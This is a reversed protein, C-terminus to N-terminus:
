NAPVEGEKAAAPNLMPVIARQRPSKPVQIQITQNPQISDLITVPEEKEPAFVQISEVTKADGLGVTLRSSTGAVRQIPHLVWDQDRVVFAVRTGPRSGALTLNLWNSMSSDVEQWRVKGESSVSFLDTSGDGTLDASLIEELSDVYSFSSSVSVDRFDMGQRNWFARNVALDGSGVILDEYGDGDLDAVGLSRVDVIGPNRIEEVGGLGTQGTVDTLTGDGNNEYLRLAPDSESEGSLLGAQAEGSSVAPNGLALDPDGDNDFDFFKAHSASQGSVFGNAASTDTFRWGDPTPSSNTLCLQDPAGQISLYFDPYGDTNVDAVEIGNVGSNIRLKLEWALPEFIGKNSQRYIELPHDRNGVILDMWGDNDYDIWAASATDSFALLGLEITVDEFGNGINRLLSNPLTGGRSIFLDQDGDDDFDAPYIGNGPIIKNLADLAAFSGDPNCKFLKSGGHSAVELSDGPVFDAIAVPAKLPNEKRVIQAPFNETEVPPYESIKLGKAVTAAEQKMAIMSLYVKWRNLLSLEDIVGEQTAVVVKKLAEVDRPPDEGVFPVPADPLSNTFPAPAETAAPQEPLLASLIEGISKEAFREVLEKDPREPRQDVPPKGGRNTFPLNRGFNTLILLALIVISSGIIIATRNSM